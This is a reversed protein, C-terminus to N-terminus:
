SMPAIRNSRYVIKTKRQNTSQIPSFSTKPTDGDTNHIVSDQIVVRDSRYTDWGDSNAITVENTSKAELDM